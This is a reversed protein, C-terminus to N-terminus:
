GGDLKHGLPVTVEGLDAAEYVGFTIADAGGHTPKRDTVEEKSMLGLQQSFPSFVTGGYAMLCKAEFLHIESYETVIYPFFTPCGSRFSYTVFSFM